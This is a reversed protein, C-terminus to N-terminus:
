FKRLVNRLDNIEYTRDDFSMTKAPTHDRVFAPKKKDKSSNRNTRKQDQQHESRPSNHQRDRFLVDVEDHVAHEVINLVAREANEVADFVAQEAEDFEDVNTFPKNSTRGRKISFEFPYTPDFSAQICRTAVSFMTLTTFKM